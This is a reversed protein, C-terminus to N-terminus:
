YLERIHIHRPNGRYTGFTATGVPDDDSGNSDWDYRMWTRSSTPLDATIDVSGYNNEGPARLWLNFGGNSPTTLYRKAADGAASCGQASVGPNGTDQVCTEGANLNRKYNGLVKLSVVSCTDDATTVWGDTTSKYYEVRMPVALDLLESGYANFLRVRGSRMPISDNGDSVGGDASDASDTDVARLSIGPVTEKAVYTCAIGSLSGEGGSYNAAVLSTNACTSFGSADSFTTARAFVPSTGRYNQTTTNGKARATAKAEFSQGSYTFVGSCGPTDTVKFHHPIFRGVNGSTDGIVDGAALYNGDGVSPTLTIIGVESWRASANVAVGSAFAGFATANEIAPNSAGSVNPAVLTPTLKVTEAPNERGYAPTAALAANVSTVTVSFDSGAKVFAAGTEDAAAPNTGTGNAAACAPSTCTINSLLFKYPKVVFANSSGSLGGTTYRMYLTVLGVDDYTLYFPAYGANNFTMPVSTYTTINGDNNGAIATTPVTEIRMQNTSYCTVPNNCGYAFEINASGRLSNDCGGGSLTKVARVFFQGSKIGATQHPINASTGGDTDSVYMADRMFTTLCSSGTTCSGGQCCLTANPATVPVGTLSVTATNGNVASTYSLTTSGVGTAFTPTTSALTGATTTLTSTQGNVDAGTYVNTCPSTSGASACATVTITTPECAVSNAPLSLEYHNLTTSGVTNTDTASNTQGNSTVSATNTILTGDVVSGSVTANVTFTLASGAPMNTITIGSGQMTAVDAPNPTPSLTPCTAGGSAVCSVSNVTLNAVAPDKFVASTITDGTNNTIVVSYNTSQSRNIVTIGDSKEIKPLVVVGVVTAQAVTPANCKSKTNPVPNAASTCIAGTPSGQNDWSLVFPVWLNGNSGSKAQCKVTVGSVRLVGTGTGGNMSGNVDGCTDTTGSHPGPDLNRFPPDTTPLVTVSCSSAGGNASLPQPDKGDNSFFIGVDWRDPTGANVTVDFDLTVNDGATCYGPSGVAALQTIQVDNATCVLDSGFRDGPCQTLPYGVPVGSSKLALVIGGSGVVTANWTATVNGTAGATTKAAAGAACAGDAGTTSEDYLKQLLSSPDTATYTTSAASNDEGCLSAIILTDAVTTTVGNLVHAATTATNPTGVVDWPNGSGLAGRYTTVAAYTDGTTTSKTVTPNTEASSTARTWAWWYRATTGRDVTALQTWGAPWTITDNTDRVVVQLLFIDGAQHAPLTVTVNAGTSAAITSSAQWVPAAAQASGVGGTLGLLMGLLLLSRFHKPYKETRANM